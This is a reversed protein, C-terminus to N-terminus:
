IDHLDIVLRDPNKLIMQDNSIPKLSELTVRTYERAPWVRASEISNKAFVHHPFIAWMLVFFVKLYYSKFM